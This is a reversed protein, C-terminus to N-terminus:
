RSASAFRRRSLSFRKCIFLDAFRPLVAIKLPNKSNSEDRQGHVIEASMVSYIAALCELSAGFCSNLSSALTRPRSETAAVVSVDPLEKSAGLM